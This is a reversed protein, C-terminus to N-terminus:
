MLDFIADTKSILISKKKLAKDDIKWTHKSLDDHRYTVYNFYDSYFIVRNDERLQRMWLVDVYGRSFYTLHSARVDTRGSLTAGSGGHGKEPLYSRKRLVIDKRYYTLHSDVFNLFSQPKIVVDAGSYLYANVTDEIYHKGYFDDDDTKIWYRDRAHYAAFNLALGVNAEKPIHFIEVDERKNYFLFPELEQKTMNAVVILHRNQYTQKDYQRVINEILEPRHTTGVVAASPLNDQVDSYRLNEIKQPKLLNEILSATRFFRRERCLVRYQELWIYERYIEHKLLLLQSTLDEPDFVETIYKRYGGLPEANGVYVVVAGSAVADLVLEQQMDVSMVTDAFMLVVSAHRFNFLQQLYGVKKQFVASKMEFHTMATRIRFDYCHDTLLMINQPIKKVIKRQEPSRLLDSVCPHLLGFHKASVGRVPAALTQEFTRPVFYAKERVSSLQDKFLEQSESEIIVVDSLDFLESFYGIFDISLTYYFVVKINAKKAEVILKKGFERLGGDLNGWQNGWEGLMDEAMSEIIVSDLQVSKFYEQYNSRELMLNIPFYPKLKLYLRESSVVGIKSAHLTQGRYRKKFELLLDVSSAARIIQNWIFPKFSFRSNIIALQRDFLTLNSSLKAAAIQRARSFVGGLQSALLKVGARKVKLFHRTIALRKKSDLWPYCAKKCSFKLVKFNHGGRSSFCVEVSSCFHPAIFFHSFVQLGKKQYKKKILAGPLLKLSFDSFVKSSGVRSSFAMDILEGREDYFNLSVDWTLVAKRLGDLVPVYSLEYVHGAIAKEVFRKKAAKAIFCPNLLSEKQNYSLAGSHSGSLAILGGDAEELVCQAAATDWESTLGFRPYFDAKGEAVLCIKLSSGINILEYEDFQDLFKQLDKNDGHRRSAVVKVKKLLKQSVRIVQKQGDEVKYAGKGQEAVYMVNLVPAYVIGIIPQHEKILAINVTFEDTKNVFEKTGDLPDVLWYESWQKREEWSIEKSEESLVPLNPTLQRLGEVIINHSLLDAKTLPSSDSKEQVGWDDSRYVTLIAEGAKKALSQLDSLM